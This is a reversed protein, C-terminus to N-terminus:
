TAASVDPLGVPPVFRAIASAPRHAPCVEVAVIFEKIRVALSKDRRAVSGAGGAIGATQNKVKRWVPM